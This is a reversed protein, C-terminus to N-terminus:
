REGREGCGRAHDDGSGLRGAAAGCPMEAREGCGRMAEGWLRAGAHGGGVAHSGSRLGAHGGGVTQGGPRLGAHGRRESKAAGCPQGWRRAEQDCGRMAEESVGRLGAHGSGYSPKGAAVGCPRGWRRAEQGCGRMAVGWRRTERGCGRM